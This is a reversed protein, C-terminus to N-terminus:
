IGEQMEQTVLWISRLASKGNRASLRGAFAPRSLAARFRKIICVVHELASCSRTRCRAVHNIRRDDAAVVLQYRRGDNWGVAVEHCETIVGQFHGTPFYEGQVVEMVIPCANGSERLQMRM